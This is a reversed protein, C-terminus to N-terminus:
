VDIEGSSQRTKKPDTVLRANVRKRMNECSKGFFSIPLLKYLGSEFDTKANQRQRNCYDVFPRMFPRQAFSFIRHVRVLKLGQSLYFKLCLYHTVYFRKDRVNSILKKCPVHTVGVYDYMQELTLSIMDADVTLHEPCLLYATHDDHLHEPYDLDVELVYGVPSDDIANVDFSDIEAQSLFRFDGLPLNYTHCTAYVLNADLYCLYSLPEEPRYNPLSPHNAKAYRRSAYSLGGRIGSEIMLLQDPDTILDLEVDTM